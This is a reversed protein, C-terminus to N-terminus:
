NGSFESLGPNLDLIVQICRNVQGPPMAAAIQEPTPCDGPGDWCVQILPIRLGYLAYDADALDNDPHEPNDKIQPYRELIQSLIREKKARYRTYELENIARFRAPRGCLTLRPAEVESQVTPQEVVATARPM